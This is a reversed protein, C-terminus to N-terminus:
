LPKRQDSGRWGDSGSWRCKTKSIMPKFPDVGAFNTSRTVSVCAAHGYLENVYHMSRSDTTVRVRRPWMEHSSTIRATLLKGAIAATSM